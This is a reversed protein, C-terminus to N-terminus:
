ALEERVVAQLDDPLGNAVARWATVTGATRAARVSARLVSQPLDTSPGPMTPAAASWDGTPDFEALVVDGSPLGSGAGALPVIIEADDGSRRRYTVAVLAPIPQEAALVVELTYRDASGRRLVLRLERQPTVARSVVTEGEDAATLLGPALPRPLLFRSTGAILTAVQWRVRPRATARLEATVRPPAVPPALTTLAQWYQRWLSAGAQLRGVRAPGGSTSLSRWFRGAFTRSTV